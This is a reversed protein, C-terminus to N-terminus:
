VLWSIEDELYLSLHTSSGGSFWSTGGPIDEQRYVPSAAVPPSVHRAEEPVFHLFSPSKPKRPKQEPLPVVQLPSNQEASLLLGQFSDLSILGDSSGFSATSAESVRRRKCPPIEGPLRLGLAKLKDEYRSSGRLAKLSIPQSSM